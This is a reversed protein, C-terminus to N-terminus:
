RRARQVAFEGAVQSDTIRVLFQDSLPVM